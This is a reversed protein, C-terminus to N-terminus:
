IWMYKQCFSVSNCKEATKIDRCRYSGRRCPDVPVGGVADCDEEAACLLAEQCQDLIGVPKTLAKQLLLGYRQTFADCEPISSPHSLCVSELFASTQLETANSGLHFRALNALTQCSDCDPSTPGRFPCLQLLCCVKKATFWSLLVDLLQRIYLEVVVQCKERLRAPLIWCVQALVKIVIGETSPLLTELTKFLYMCLTCQLNTMETMTGPGPSLRVETIYNTLLEQEMGQSQSKCEGLITCIQNTKIFDTLFQIVMPLIQKVQDQCVNQTTTDPLQNCLEDLINKFKDQTDADSIVDVFLELIQKCDKCNDQTASMNGRGSRADIVGAAATSYCVVFIFFGFKLFAM